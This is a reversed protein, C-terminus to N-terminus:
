RGTFVPVVYTDSGGSPVRPMSGDAEVCIRFRDDGVIGDSVHGGREECEERIREREAEINSSECYLFPGSLLGILGVGFMSFGVFPIIVERVFSGLFSNKKM